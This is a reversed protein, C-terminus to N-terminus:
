TGSSSDHLRGAVRLRYERALGDPKFILILVLGLGILILRLSAAQHAAMGPVFDKLFRTGELLVMLTCAGIL